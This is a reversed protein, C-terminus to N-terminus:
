KFITDYGLNNLMKDGYGGERKLPLSPSAGRRDLLPPNLPTLNIFLRV